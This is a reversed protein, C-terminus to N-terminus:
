APVGLPVSQGKKLSKGKKKGKKSTALLYVLTGGIGLVAVGGIVLPLKSPPAQQVSFDDEYSIAPSEGTVAAQAQQAVKGVFSAIQGGKKTQLEGSTTYSVETTKGKAGLEEEMEMAKGLLKEIKAKLKDCKKQKWAKKTPSPGCRKEYKDMKMQARRRKTDRRERKSLGLIGYDGYAGAIEVSTAPTFEVETSGTALVTGSSAAVTSKPTPLSAMPRKGAKMKRRRRRHRPPKLPPRRRKKPRHKKPRPAGYSVESPKFQM